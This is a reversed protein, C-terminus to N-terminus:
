RIRKCCYQWALERKGKWQFNYLQMELKEPVWHSGGRSLGPKCFYWSLVANALDLQLHLDHTFGSMCGQLAHNFLFWVIGRFSWQLSALGMRHAAGLWKIFKCHRADITQLLGNWVRITLIARSLSLLQKKFNVMVVLMFDCEHDDCTSLVTFHDKPPHQKSPKTCDSIQWFLM